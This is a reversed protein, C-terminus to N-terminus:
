DAGKSTANGPFTLRGPMLRQGPYPTRDIVVQVTLQKTEGDAAAVTVTLTAM